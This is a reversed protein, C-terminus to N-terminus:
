RGDWRVGLFVLPGIAPMNLMEQHTQGFGCSHSVTYTAVAGSSIGTSPPTSTGGVCSFLNQAQLTVRTGSRILYSASFDLTGFSPIIGRNVGSQFSYRNVYRMSFGANTNPLVNAWDIGANVKASTSNIATAEANTTKITDVKLLSVNGMASVNDTFYYKLGADIGDITAEGLNYYILVIQPGGNQDTVKAGTVHNYANTSPNGFPNAIISLPSQFNQYKTQYATIDIFLKNSIEGKYGVEWTDNKEPQIAGYSALITGAANKVDYGTTNGFVGVFPAFNPYYFDTMLITPSKFAKSYTVRFTQDSTPSFLIAAKPSFQSGYKDPQDYRAAIVSRFMDSWPTEIQAYAGKQEVLIATGTARDTLWHMYSSVRDRRYQAGWTIHTEDLAKVGTAGLMGISFNNQVEAAMLRGEGPFSSLTKASDSSITPHSTSNTTYANLQFTGGGTSSNEYVQAFWRAGAYKLQLHKYGYNVLQNRGVNTQGIGYTASAGADVSLRGGNDFYYALLGNGRTVNTNFDTGKEVVPALPNATTSLPNPYSPSYSYDSASQKEADLKYGWKGNSTVGAFRGQADYFSRTGGSLEVTYGPFAKPDKTALTIVGNSADPGYLASGPGTLVEVSAIDVKPITTLVGAPLGSEVLTAIRGDETQLMRTNFSSNFGRANVAAATVGVQVFDLGPVGKLAPAFSNGVTGELAKADITTVAAPADTVKEVRRSASVVVGGLQVAAAELSIALNASQGATVTVGTMTRSKFGLRYVQVAYTGAPVGTVTYKGDAGSEASLGVGTVIVQAGSVPNKSADTVAGSIRGTQALALAPIAAVIAAARIAHSLITRFMM